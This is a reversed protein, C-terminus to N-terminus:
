TPRSASRRGSSPSWRPCAESLAPVGAVAIVQIRLREGNDTRLRFGRADKKTLGIKDLMENAQAVDLTSWKKRWEPGPSQPMSEGPAPSGPTGVGLWFTENM